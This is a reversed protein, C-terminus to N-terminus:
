DARRRDSRASVSARAARHLAREARRQGSARGVAFLDNDYLDYPMVDPTIDLHWTLYPLSLQDQWSWSLNEAMWAENLSRIAAVENDRVLLGGCYLVNESRFGCSRYHAVQERVPQGDYKPRTASHEAEDFINDRAPHKLLALGNVGLCRMVEEAFTESKLRLSGDIWITYRYDSLVLHPHMKFWKAALRPHEYRPPSAVIQWVDSSVSEDETFCFYDVGPCRPPEALKDYGGFISTYLAIRARGNTRAMM